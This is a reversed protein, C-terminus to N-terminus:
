PARSWAFGAAQAQTALSALLREAFVEDLALLGLADGDVAPRAVALVGRSRLAAARVAWGPELLALAQAPTVDPPPADPASLLLVQSQLWWPFAPAEFMEAIAEPRRSCVLTIAAGHGRLRGIVTRLASQGSAMRACDGDDDRVWAAPGAHRTGARLFGVKATGALACAITRGIPRPVGADPSAADWGLLWVHAEDMAALDGHQGPVAMPGRQAWLVPKDM